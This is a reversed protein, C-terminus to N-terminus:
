TLGQIYSAKVGFAKLRRVERRIEELDYGGCDSLDFTIRFPYGEYERLILNEPTTIILAKVATILADGTLKPAVIQKIIRAAFDVDEEDTLRSVRYIEGWRDLFYGRTSLINQQEAGVRSMEIAGSMTVALAGLLADLIVDDREYISSLNAHLADKMEGADIEVVATDTEASPLTKVEVTNSAESPPLEWHKRTRIPEPDSWAGADNRFQMEDDAINAGSIALEIWTTKTTDGQVVTLVLAM